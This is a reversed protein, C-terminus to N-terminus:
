LRINVNKEVDNRHESLNKNRTEGPRMLLKFTELFAPSEMDNVYKALGIYGQHLWSSQCKWTILKTYHGGGREEWFVCM